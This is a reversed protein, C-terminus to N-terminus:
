DCIFQHWVQDRVPYSGENDRRCLMLLAVVIAVAIFVMVLSETERDPM